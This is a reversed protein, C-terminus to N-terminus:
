WILDNIKNQVLDLEDELAVLMRQQNKESLFEMQRISRIQNKLYDKRSKMILYLENTTM